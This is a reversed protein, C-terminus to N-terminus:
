RFLSKVASLSKAETAVGGQSLSIDDYYVPSAGNAFLDLAGIDLAGGGSAGETWSATYLFDGNYYFTQVNAVLDIELRLEAWEGVVYPLSGIDNFGTIQGNTFNVEVSWNMDGNPTYTNLVIFYTQGTFDTPIFMWAVFEWAGSDYGSFQQVIDANGTIAVSNSGNYAYFDSIIADFIPDANWGAWGGLGHLGGGVPYGEFGDYWQAQAAIPGLAVLAVLAIIFRSRTKM